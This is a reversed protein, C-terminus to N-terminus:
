MGPYWFVSEGTATRGSYMGGGLTGRPGYTGDYGHTLSGGAGAAVAALNTVAPGGELGLDGQADLWYRGPVTYGFAQLLAAEDLPHIERGNIYIDTGGGSIDEPMPGPLDLGPALIGAAPGGEVGWAGCAADYWYRGDEITTQYRREAAIVDASPLRVRNVYV